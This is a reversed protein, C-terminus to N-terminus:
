KKNLELWLNAVAIEPTSGRVEIPKGKPFQGTLVEMIDETHVGTAWWSVGKHLNLFNEGCAEILESLGIPYNNHDRPLYKGNLFDMPELEHNCNPLSQQLKKATEYNM